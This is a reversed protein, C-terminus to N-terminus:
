RPKVLSTQNIAFCQSIRQMLTILRNNYAPTTNLDIGFVVEIKREKKQFTIRLDDDQQLVIGRLRPKAKSEMDKTLKDAQELFAARPDTTDSPVCLHMVMKQKKEGVTRYLKSDGCKSIEEQSSIGTSRYANFTVDDDKMITLVGKVKRPVPLAAIDASATTTPTSTKTKSNVAEQNTKKAM